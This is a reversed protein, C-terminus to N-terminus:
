HADLLDALTAMTSQGIGSVLTLINLHYPLVWSFTFPLLSPGNSFHMLLISKKCLMAYCLMITLMNTANLAHSCRNFGSHGDGPPYLCKSLIVKKEEVKGKRNQM